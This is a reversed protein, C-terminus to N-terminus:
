SGFIKPTLRVLVYLDKMNSILSQSMTKLIECKEVLFVTMTVIVNSIMRFDLRNQSSHFIKQCLNFYNM